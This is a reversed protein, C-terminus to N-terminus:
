PFISTCPEAERIQKSLKECQEICFDLDCKEPSDGSHGCDFGLWWLDSKVPYTGKRNGSFTVSGHVDFVIDMSYSPKDPNLCFLPIIGRDGIKGKLCKEYLSKLFPLNEAVDKGFFGSGEPVGIYGCNLNLKQIKIVVAKHNNETEWERLISYM